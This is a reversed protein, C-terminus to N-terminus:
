GTGSRPNSPNNKPAGLIHLYTSVKPAPCFFLWHWPVTASALEAGKFMDIMKTFIIM